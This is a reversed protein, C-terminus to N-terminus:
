ASGRRKNANMIWHDEFPEHLDAESYNDSEFRLVRQNYEDKAQEVEFAHADYLTLYRMMIKAQYRELKKNNFALKHWRQWLRPIVRHFTRKVAPNLLLMEKFEPWGIHHKQMFQPIAYSDDQVSWELMAECLQLWEPKKSSSTTLDHSPQM